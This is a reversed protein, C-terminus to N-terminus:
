SASWLTLTISRFYLTHYLAFVAGAYMIQTAKFYDLTQQSLSLLDYRYVFPQLLHAIFLKWVLSIIQTKKIKIPKECFSVM